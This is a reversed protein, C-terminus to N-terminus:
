RWALTSRRSWYENPPEAIEPWDGTTQALHVARLNAVAEKIIVGLGQAKADALAPRQSREDM